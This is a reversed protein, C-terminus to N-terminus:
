MTQTLEGDTCKIRDTWSTLKAVNEPQQLHTLVDAPLWAYLGMKKGRAMLFVEQLRPQWGDVDQLDLDSHDFDETKGGASGTRWTGGVTEALVGGLSHARRNVRQLAGAISNSRRESRTAQRYSARAFTPPEAVLQATNVKRLYKTNIGYAASDQWKVETEESVLEIRDALLALDSKLVRQVAEAPMEDQAKKTGPLKVDAICKQEDPDWTGIQTLVCNSKNWVKLVVVVVLRQVEGVGNQLALCKGTNIEQELKDFGKTVMFLAARRSRSLQSFAARSVLLQCDHNM